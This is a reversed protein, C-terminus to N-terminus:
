LVQEVLKKIQERTKDQRAEALLDILIKKDEIRLGERLYLATTMIILDEIKYRGFKEVIALLLKKDEADVENFVEPSAEQFVYRKSKDKTEVRAYERLEVWSLWVDILDCHPGSSNKLCYGWEYERGYSFLYMLKQILLRTAKVNPFKNKLVALLFVVCGVGKNAFEM